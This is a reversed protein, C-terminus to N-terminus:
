KEALMKHLQNILQPFTTYGDTRLFHGSNPILIYPMNLQKALSISLEPEVSKDNSSIFMLQHKVKPLQKPDFQNESIYQDLEPFAQAPRNLGSVLIIGGIQHTSHRELYHLLTITGLSHAVFFTNEDIAHLERDLTNQWDATNPQNPNPFSIIKATTQKDEINRKVANFWHDDKNAGYGPLIYVTKM